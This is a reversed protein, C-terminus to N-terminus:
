LLAGSKVLPNERALDHYSYGRSSATPLSSSALCATKRSHYWDGHVGIYDAGLPGRGIRSQERVRTPVHERCRGAKKVEGIKEPEEKQIRVRREPHHQNETEDVRQHHVGVDIANTVVEDVVWKEAGFNQVAKKSDRLRHRTTKRLRKVVCHVHLVVFAIRVPLIFTTVGKIPQRDIAVAVVPFRFIRPTIHKQTKEAVIDARDTALQPLAPVAVNKPSVDFQSRERGRKEDHKEEIPSVHDEKHNREPIEAVTETIQVTVIAVVAGVRVFWDGPAHAAVSFDVVPEKEVVAVVGFVMEPRFHMPCFHFGEALANSLQLFFLANAGDFARM